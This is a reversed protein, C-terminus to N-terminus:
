LQQKVYAAIGWAMLPPVANGIQRLRDGMNGFFRFDDPFSQLRATERVSLTRPQGPHIHSYGDKALHATVTWSRRHWFLRRYRDKFIDDRYRKFRPELEVYMSGEAMTGFAEIDDDNHKRGVHDTILGSSGERMIQAYRCLRGRSVKYQMPDEAAGNGLQPLDAIAHKVTVRGPLRHQRRFQSSYRKIGSAPLNMSTDNRVGIFILRSREQPVGFWAANVLAYSCRYGVDEFNRVVASAVNVGEVSLMGPVNEMVCVRPRLQSVFDLFRRYLSNRPDDLLSSAVGRLSRIKGRGVRSWGQCPPGGVIVHVDRINKGLEAALEAPSFLDLNRNLVLYDGGFNLEHTRLAATDYDVAALPAFGAQTWGWSFGGAGCFLDIFGPCPSRYVTRSPM